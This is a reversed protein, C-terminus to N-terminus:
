TGARARIAAAIGKCAGDGPIGYNASWFGEAVKACAEREDAKARELFAKGADPTLARDIVDCRTITFDPLPNHEHPRHRCHELAERMAAAEAELEANRQDAWAIFEDRREIERLAEDLNM